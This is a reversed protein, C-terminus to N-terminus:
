ARGTVSGHLHYRKFGIPRVGPTANSIRLTTARTSGALFVEHAEDSTWEAYNLVRSGDTSVHFNAALLGRNRDPPAQEISDAISDIIHEQRDPGDVDFTAIVVCTPPTDDRVVSRGLRYEVPGAGSAGHLSRITRRDSRDLCRTYALVTDGRVDLFCSSSRIEAPWTTGAWRRGLSDLLRRAAEADPVYWTSVFAVPADTRRVDPMATSIPLTM